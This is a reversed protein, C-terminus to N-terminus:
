ARGEAAKKAAHQRDRRMMDRLADRRRRYNWESVHIGSPGAWYGWGICKTWGAKQLRYDLQAQTLDRKQKTAM